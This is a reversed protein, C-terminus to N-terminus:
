GSTRSSSSRGTFGAVLALQDEGAEVALRHREQAVARAIEDLEGVLRARAPRVSTANSAAHQGTEVVHLLDAPDDDVRPM